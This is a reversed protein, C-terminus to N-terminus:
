SSRNPSLYIQSINKYTGSILNVNRARIVHTPLRSYKAHKRSFEVYENCNSHMVILCAFRVTEYSHSLAYNTDPFLDNRFVRLMITEIM